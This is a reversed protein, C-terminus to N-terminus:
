GTAEPRSLADRNFAQAGPARPPSSFDPTFPRVLAGLSTMELKTPSTASDTLPAARGQALM